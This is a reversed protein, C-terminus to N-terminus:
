RAELALVVLAGVEGRQEAAGLPLEGGLSQRKGPLRRLEGLAGEDARQRVEVLLLGLDGLLM